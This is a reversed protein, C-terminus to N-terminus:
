GVRGALESDYARRRAVVVAFARSVLERRRQWRRERVQLELKRLAERRRAHEPSELAARAIQSRIYLGYLDM